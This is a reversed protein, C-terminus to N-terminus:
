GTTSWCSSTKSAATRSSLSCAFGTNRAKAATAPGCASSTATGEATVALVVYISRNAVQGDRIKVNVADIFVVGLAVATVVLPDLHGDRRQTAAQRDVCWPLPRGRGALDGAPDGGRRGPAAQVGGLREPPQELVARFQISRRAAAPPPPRARRRRGIAGGRVSAGRGGRGRGRRCGGGSTVAASVAAPRPPGASPCCRHARGSGRSRGRRGDRGGGSRLELWPMTSPTAVPIDAARGRRVGVTIQAFEPTSM